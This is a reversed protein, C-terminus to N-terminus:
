MLEKDNRSPLRENSSAHEIRDNQDAISEALSRMNPPRCEKSSSVRVPPNRIGKKLVHLQEDSRASIDISEDSEEEITRIRKPKSKKKEKDGKDKKKKEEGPAKQPFRPHQKFQVVM